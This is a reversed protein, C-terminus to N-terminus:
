VNKLISILFEIPTDSISLLMIVCEDVKYLSFMDDTVYMPRREAEDLKKKDIKDQEVLWSIFWFKKSIIDLTINRSESAWYDEAYTILYIENWRHRYEKYKSLPKAENLLELLKWIEKKEM